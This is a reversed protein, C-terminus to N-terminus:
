KNKLLEIEAQLSEILEQHEQLAKILVPILGTYNMGHLSSNVVKGDEDRLVTEKVLNPFVEKVDQALLGFQLEEPLNLIKASESENEFYYSTPNLKMLNGMASSITSINRKLNKDSAVWTGGSAYGDGYVTLQYSAAADDVIVRSLGDERFRAIGGINTTLAAPQNVTFYALAGDGAGLLLASELTSEAVSLRADVDPVTTGVGVLGAANIRMREINSTGFKMYNSEWQWLHAGGDAEVGISMGDSSGNGTAGNNMLLYTSSSSTNSVQIKRGPSSTGIGINTGSNYLLSSAEWSTGNHRLTQGVTGAVLPGEPGAPGVSGM